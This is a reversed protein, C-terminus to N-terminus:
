IACQIAATIGREGNAGVPTRAFCSIAATTLIYIGMGCQLQPSPEPKELVRVVRGHRDSVVGFNRSVETAPAERWVMLAANTPLIPLSGELFVDGLVVVVREDLFPEALLIANAVGDPEPQRVIRAAPILRRVAEPSDRDEADLIVIPPRRSQHFPHLATVLREFLSAGGVPVLSKPGVPRPALRTGKGGCVFVTQM